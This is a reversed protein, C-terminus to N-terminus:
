ASRPRIPTLVQLLVFVLGAVALPARHRRRAAGCAVLAGMAIAFVVPLLGRLVVATWWALALGGDAKPLAAFFMWEKRGYVRELVSM